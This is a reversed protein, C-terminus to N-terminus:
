TQLVQGLLTVSFITLLFWGIAGEIVVLYRSVGRAMIEGYGLTTFANLSLAFANLLKIFLSIALVVFFLASYALNNTPKNGKFIKSNLSKLLSYKVKYLWWSFGIRWYVVNPLLRRTAKSRLFTRYRNFLSVKFLETTSFDGGEIKKLVLLSYFLTFGGGGTPSDIPILFYFVTFLLVIIISFKVSQSFDTGFACFFELFKLMYYNLLNKFSGDSQYDLWYHDMDIQKIM